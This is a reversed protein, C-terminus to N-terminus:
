NFYGGDNRIVKDDRVFKDDRVQDNQADMRESSMLHMRAGFGPDM